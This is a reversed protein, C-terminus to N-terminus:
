TFNINTIIIDNTAKINTKSVKLCAKIGKNGFM